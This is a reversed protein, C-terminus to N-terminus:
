LRVSYCMEITSGIEAFAETQSCYIGAGVEQRM